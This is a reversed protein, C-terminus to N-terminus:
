YKVKQIVFLLNIQYIEILEWYMLALIKLSLSYTKTGDASESITLAELGEPVAQAEGFIPLILILCFIKFTNHYKQYHYNISGLTESTGKLKKNSIPVNVFANKRVTKRKSKKLTRVM